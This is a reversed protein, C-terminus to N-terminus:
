SVKEWFERAEKQEKTEPATPDDWDGITGNTEELAEIEEETLEERPDKKGFMIDEQFGYMYLYDYYEDETLLEEEDELEWWDQPESPTPVVPLEDYFDLEDFEDFEDM